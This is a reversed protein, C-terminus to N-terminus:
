LDSVDRCTTTPFPSRSSTRAEPFLLPAAEGSERDHNWLLVSVLLGHSVLVRPGPHDLSALVGELMRRIGEHQSERAGPPRQQAGHGDLWAAYELFPGGEFEGYDLENLRPDVILEPAPVGMLLQATQCARPFESALWTKVRHLPVSSWGRSLTRRGEANLPIPKAPDGNVRPRRSHKTQGHRLVYTIM